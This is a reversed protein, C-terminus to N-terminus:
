GLHKKCQGGLVEFDDAGAALGCVTQVAVGQHDTVSILQGATCAKARRRKANDHLEIKNNPLCMCLALM